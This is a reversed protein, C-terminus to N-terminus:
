NTVEVEYCQQFATCFLDNLIPYGFSKEKKKDGL